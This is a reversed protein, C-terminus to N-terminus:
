APWSSVSSRATAPRDAVFIHTEGPTELRTRWREAREVVSLSALHEADIIGAYSTRWSDVHVRAIAEADKVQAPRVTITPDM